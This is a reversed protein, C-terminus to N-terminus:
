KIIYNCTFEIVNDFFLFQKKYNSKLNDINNLEGEFDIDINQWNKNNKLIRKAKKKSISSPLNNGKFNLFSKLGILALKRNKFLNKIFLSLWWGGGNTCIYIKGKNKLVRKFENLAKDHKLFMFVGYCFIADFSNDDFPMKEADGYILNINSINMSHIYEKAIEIRTESKELSIIKENFASMAVSWQGYGCGVDLVCKKNTFGLNKIRKIYYSLPRQTIVKAYNLDNKETALDILLDWERFTNKIM